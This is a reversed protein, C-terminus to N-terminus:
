GRDDGCASHEREDKDFCFAFRCERVVRDLCSPLRIISLDVDIAPRRQHGANCRKCQTIFASHSLHVIRGCKRTKNQMQAVRSGQEWLNGM